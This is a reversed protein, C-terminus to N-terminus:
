DFPYKKRLFFPCNKFLAQINSKMNTFITEAVSFFGPDIGFSWTLKATLKGNKDYEYAKQQKEEVPNKHCSIRETHYLFNGDKTLTQNNGFESKECSSFLFIAFITLFGTIKFKPCTMEIQRM